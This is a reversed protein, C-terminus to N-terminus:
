RRPQCSSPSFCDLVLRNAPTPIGYGMGLRCVTGAFAAVETVRRALVDQLMSTKGDPSLMELAADLAAPVNDLGPAGAARAVATAEDALAHFFALADPNALLQGHNLGLLAEAQNLGVNLIWKRWKAAVFDAPADADLGASRLFGALRAAARTAVTGDGGVLVRFTGSQRVARGEREASNCLVFGDLYVAAGPGLAERLRERADLGNLVPLVVTGGDRRLWPRLPAAPHSLLAPIKVAVVLLDAGPWDPPPAARFADSGLPVPEGNLTPLTERCQRARADDMVACVEVGETLAFRDAFVTGLAGLGWIAVRKM